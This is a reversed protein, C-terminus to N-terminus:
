ARPAKNALYSMLQYVMSRQKVQGVYAAVYLDQAPVHFLVAGSAGSHGIFEPAAQFPSMFRPLAFRMIGTGYQLPYFIRRWQATLEHLDAAPFLRGNMFAELFAVQEPATSVISGDAGFSAMAQPIPFPEKGYKMSAIEGFRDHTSHDYLYTESLGLPEFIRAQLADRYAQEGVVEILTGLLQYNTDSYLAKGPTGPAFHPTMDKASALAFEPDWTRDAKVIDAFLTSGDARKGEFYDPLGSTHALLQEITIERSYDRGGFSHLGTMTDDGLHKVVPDTLALKGEARLQLVIAVTFLKTTSAIFYPAPASPERWSWEWGVCPISMAVNVHSSTPKAAYREAIAALKAEAKSTDTMFGDHHVRCLWAM